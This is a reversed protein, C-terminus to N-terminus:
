RQRAALATPPTTEPRPARRTDQVYVRTTRERQARALAPSLLELFVNRTRM